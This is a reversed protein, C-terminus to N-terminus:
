QNNQFVNQCFLIIVQQLFLADYNEYVNSIKFKKGYEKAKEYKRSAIGYICLDSVKRSPWIMSLYVLNSCGVIGLNIM